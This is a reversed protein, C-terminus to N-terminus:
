KSRKPISLDSTPNEYILNPSTNELYLGNEWLSASKLNRYIYKTKLQLLHLLTPIINQIMVGIEIIIITISTKFRNQAQLCKTLKSKFLTALGVYQKNFLKAFSQYM